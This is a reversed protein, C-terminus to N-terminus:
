AFVADDRSLRRVNGDSAQRVLGLGPVRHEEDRHRVKM